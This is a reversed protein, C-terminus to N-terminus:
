RLWPILIQKPCIPHLLTTKQQKWQASTYCILGEKTLLPLFSFSHKWNFYLLHSHTADNHVRSPSHNWDSCSVLTAGDECVSSTFLLYCKGLFLSFLPNLSCQEVPLFIFSCILCPMQIHLPLAPFCRGWLRCQQLSYTAWLDRNKKKEARHFPFCVPNYIYICVKAKNQKPRHM